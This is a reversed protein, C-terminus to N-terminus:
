EENNLYHSVDLPWEGQIKGCTMCYSFSIYDSDDSINLDQPPYGELEKKNDIDIHCLDSCKANVTILHECNCNSM